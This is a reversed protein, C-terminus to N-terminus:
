GGLVSQLVTASILLGYLGWILHELRNFRQNGSELRQDIQDWRVKSVERFSALDNAVNDAKPQAKARPMKPRKKTKM